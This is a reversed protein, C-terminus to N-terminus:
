HQLFKNRKVAAAPSITFQFNKLLPSFICLSYIVLNSYTRGTFIYKTFTLLFEQRNSATGM